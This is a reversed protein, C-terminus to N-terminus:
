EPTRFGFHRKPEDPNQRKLSTLLFSIQSVHQVLTVPQGVETTGSFVILSPNDFGIEEVHFTIAQGFSVLRLGVEHADDLREDFEAIHSHLYAHFESALNLKALEALAIVSEDSLEAKANREALAQAAEAQRALFSSSAAQFARAQNVFEFGM